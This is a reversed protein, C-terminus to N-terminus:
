AIPASRLQTSRECQFRWDRTGARSHEKARPAAASKLRSDRHSTGRPALDSGLSCASHATWWSSWAHPEATSDGLQAKWSWHLSAGGTSCSAYGASLTYECSQATETMACAQAPREGSTASRANALTVSGPEAVPASGSPIPRSGSSRTPSVTSRTIPGAVDRERCQYGLRMIGTQEVLDDFVVDPDGAFARVDAETSVDSRSTASGCRSRRDGVWGPPRSGRSALRLVLGADAAFLLRTLM